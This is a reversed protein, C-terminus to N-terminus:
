NTFFGTMISVRKLLRVIDRIKKSLPIQKKLNAKEKKGKVTHIGSRRTQEALRSKERLMAM